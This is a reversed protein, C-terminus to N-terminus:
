AHERETYDYNEQNIQQGKNTMTFYGRIKYLTPSKEVRKQCILISNTTPIEYRIVKM